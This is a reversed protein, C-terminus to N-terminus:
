LILARNLLFYCIAFLSAFLILSVSFLSERSKVVNQKDLALDDEGNFEELTSKSVGGSHDSYPAEANHVKQLDEFYDKKHLMHCRGKRIKCGRVRLEFHLSSKERFEPRRHKSFHKRMFKEDGRLHRQIFIFDGSVVMTFLYIDNNATSGALLSLSPVDEPGLTDFNWCLRMHRALFGDGTEESHQPVQSELAVFIAVGWWDSSRCDDPIDVTVSAISDLKSVYSTGLPFFKQNDFGAPVEM